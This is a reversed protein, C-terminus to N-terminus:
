SCSLLVFAIRHSCLNRTSGRVESSHVTSTNEVCTLPHSNINASRISNETSAGRRQFDWRTKEHFTCCGSIVLRGTLHATIRFNQGSRSREWDRIARWNERRRGNLVAGVNSKSNSWGNIMRRDLFLFCLNHRSLIVHLLSSAGVWSNIVYCCKLKKSGFKKPFQQTLFDKKWGIIKTM